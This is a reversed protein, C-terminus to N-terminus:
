VPGHRPSDFLPFHGIEHNGRGVTALDYRLFPSGLVKSNMQFPVEETSSKIFAIYASHTLDVPGRRHLLLVTVGDIAINSIM